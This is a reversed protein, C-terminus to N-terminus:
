ISASREMSPGERQFYGVGSSFWCWRASRCNRRRRRSRREKRAEEARNVPPSGSGHRYRRRWCALLGALSGKVYARRM